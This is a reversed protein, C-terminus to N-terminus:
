RSNKYRPTLTEGLNFVYHGDRDDNRRSPSAYKKEYGVVAFNRQAQPSPPPAVDWELRPRKWTQERKMISVMSM